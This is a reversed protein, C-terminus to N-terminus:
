KAIYLNDMKILSQLTIFIKIQFCKKIHINYNLSYYIYNNYYLILKNYLNFIFLYFNIIIFCM